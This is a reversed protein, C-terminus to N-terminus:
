KKKAEKVVPTADEKAKALHTGIKQVISYATALRRLAKPAKQVAELTLAKLENELAVAAAEVKKTDIM